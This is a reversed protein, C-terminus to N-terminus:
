TMRLRVASDCIPEASASAFRITSSAAWRPSVFFFSARSSAFSSMWRRRWSSSRSVFSRRESSWRWSRRTTWFSSFRSRLSSEMSFRSSDKDRLSVRRSLLWAATLSICSCCFASSSRMEPRVASSARVVRMASASSSSLCSFAMFILSYSCCTFSSDSLFARSIREVAMWRQAASWVASTVTVETCMGESSRLPRMMPRSPRLIRVSSVSVPM